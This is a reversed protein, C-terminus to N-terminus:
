RAADPLQLRLEIHERYRLNFGDDETVKAREQSILCQGTSRIVPQRGFLRTGATVEACAVQNGGEAFVIRSSGADYTLGPVTLREFYVVNAFLHEDHLAPDRVTVELWARKLDPDAAFRTEVIAGQIAPVTGLELASAPAVGALVSCVVAINRLTVM